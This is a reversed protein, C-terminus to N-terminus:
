KDHMITKWQETEAYQKIIRNRIKLLRQMYSTLFLKNVLQGIIGYPSEFYFEDTMLTIENVKQEFYHKHIMTEFDGKVMEDQFFSYLNMRTIAVTLYRTKFLHKAEWTVMENVTILGSTRGGVAQENTHSMSQKHLDISRSLDFVREVPANIYTVLHILPM